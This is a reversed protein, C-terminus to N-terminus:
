NKLIVEKVNKYESMDSTIVVDGAKVNDKLEVYDFNSFGINVTRREAKGNLVVFIDQVQTGKFAPGNAVRLVNSKSSTVLFIDAKMNPRLIKNDKETLEIEFLVVGNQVSPLINTVKGNIRTENVRLIATMGKQIQNIYNDPITGKVKFGSLNAIRVLPDGVNVADGINKNVWTVVGSRTANINAMNLKRELEHLANEQIAAAIEGERMEVKMTQQKNKIENELQKKELQAVKLNLEAQEISEKTGGGAKFLRKASEVDAILSNIRIEKISNSSQIDYYSKDLQLKIKTISNRKSELEFKLRIYETQSASKDLTLISAGAEVNSGADVLVNQISSSIPSTIVEEFEPVVEGSANLTNEISGLEVVSTTIASNKKTSNFSSRLMIIGIVLAAIIGLSILWIRKRKKSFVRPEIITDMNKEM